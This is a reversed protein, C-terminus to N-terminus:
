TSTTSVPSGILISSSGYSSVMPSVSTEPYKASWPAFNPSPTMTTDRSTVCCRRVWERSASVTAWNSATWCNAFMPTHVSSGAVPSTHNEASSRRMKPM